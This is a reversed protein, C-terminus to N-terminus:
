FSRGGRARNVVNIRTTDFYDGLVAGWGRHWADPGRDATSDGALFLTPLAPALTDFQSATWPESDRAVTVQPYAPRDAAPQANPQAFAGAAWALVAVGLAGGLSIRTRSM